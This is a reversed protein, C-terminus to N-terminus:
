PGHRQVSSGCKSAVKCATQWEFTKSIPARRFNGGCTWAGFPTILKSPAAMLKKKCACHVHIEHDSMDYWAHRCANTDRSNLVTRSVAEPVVIPKGLSSNRSSDKSNCPIHIYICITNINKDIFVYVYPLAGYHNSCLFGVDLPLVSDEQASYQHCSM